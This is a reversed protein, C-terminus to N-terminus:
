ESGVINQFKFVFCKYFINNKDILIKIVKKRWDKFTPECEARIKVIIVTEDVASFINLGDYLVSEYPFFEIVKPAM